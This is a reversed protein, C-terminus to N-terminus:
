SSHIMSCFVSPTVSPWSPVDPLRTRTVLILGERPSMRAQHIQAFHPLVTPLARLLLSFAPLLSVPSCSRTRFNPLTFLAEAPVTLCGPRRLALAPDGRLPTRRLLEAGPFSSPEDSLGSGPDKGSPEQGGSSVPLHGSSSSAAPIHASIQLLRLFTM